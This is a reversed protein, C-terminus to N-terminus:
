LTDSFGFGSQKAAARLWEKAPKTMRLFMFLLFLFLFGSSIDPKQRKLIVITTKV